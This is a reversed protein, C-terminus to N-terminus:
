RTERSICKDVLREPLIRELVSREALAVRGKRDLTLYVCPGYKGFNALHKSVDVLRMTARGDPYVARIFGGGYLRPQVIRV